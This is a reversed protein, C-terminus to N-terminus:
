IVSLFRKFRLRAINQFCEFCNNEIFVEQFCNVASCAHFYTVASHIPFGMENMQAM